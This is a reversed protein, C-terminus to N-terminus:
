RRNKCADRGLYRDVKALVHLLTQGIERLYPKLRHKERVDPTRTGDSGYSCSEAAAREGRERGEPVAGTAEVFILGAGGTAFAGLHVLHWKGVLGDKASYQCMPSVWARNPITLDRIKFEQFLPYSM